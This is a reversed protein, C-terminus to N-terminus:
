DKRDSPKEKKNKIYKILFLVGITIVLGPIVGSLDILVDKFTGSRLPIFFQITESLSALLIGAGLSILATIWWKREPFFMFLALFTFVQTIGFMMAHGISKRISLNVNEISEKDIAGAKIVTVETENILSPVINSTITILVSGEQKFELIINDGQNTYGAIEENSINVTVDKNLATKDYSIKVAIVNGVFATLKPHDWVEKEGVIYCTYLKSPLEKKVSIEKNIQQGTIKNTAKIIVVEDQLTTKRYGRIFGNQDVNALLPNSSEWIFEKSDIINNGATVTLQHKDSGFVENEYCYDQGNLTLNEYDLPVTGPTVAINFTKEISASSVKITSTGTTLPHIVGFNDVTAVTTNSSEYTLKTPDYYLSNKFDTAYSVNITEYSGIAIESNTLSADFTTPAVLDVVNFTMEQNLTKDANEAKVVATGTKMGVISVKAGSQNLTVVDYNTTSYRIAKNSANDPYVTTQLEKICGLPIENSEYGPVTNYANDSLATEISEVPIIEVEKETFNNIINAFINSVFRSWVNTTKDDLCSYFIIFANLVVACSLMIWKSVRYPKNNVKEAMILWRLM